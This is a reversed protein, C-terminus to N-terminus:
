PRWCPYVTGDSIVVGCRILLPRLAGACAGACAFAFYLAPARHVVRCQRAAPATPVTNLVERVQLFADVSQNPTEKSTQTPGKAAGQQSKTEVEM